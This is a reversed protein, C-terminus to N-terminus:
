AIKWVGRSDSTFCSHTYLTQRVKERWHPNKRTKKFGEILSYIEGLPLSTKDKLVAYVVDTWTADESDRIDVEYRVPQTFDVLYPFVNKLLRITLCDNRVLVM